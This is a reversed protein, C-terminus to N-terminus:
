RGFTTPSNKQAGLGVVMEFRRLACSVGLLGAAWFARAPM